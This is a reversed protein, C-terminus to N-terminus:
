RSKQTRRVLYIGVVALVIAAGAIVFGRDIEHGIHEWRDGLFYGFSVFCVVWVIGGPWAWVAFTRFDLKSMGATLATFHRLGAVFYGFFLTWTGYHRFWKDVVPQHRGIYRNLFPSREIIFVAGSRGLWYSLTIGCLSGASGAVIAPIFSLKGNHIAIGSLVLITEDPILPGVIGLMLLGFIALYGYNALFIDIHEM